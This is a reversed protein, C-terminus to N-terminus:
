PLKLAILRTVGKLFHGKKLQKQWKEGDLRLFILDVAVFEYDASLKSGSVYSVHGSVRIGM